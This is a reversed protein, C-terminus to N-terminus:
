VFPASLPYAAGAAVSGCSKIGDEMKRQGVSGPFVCDIRGTSSAAM